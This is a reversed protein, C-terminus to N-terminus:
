ILRKIDKKELLKGSGEGYFAIAPEQNTLIAYQMESKLGSIITESLKALTSAQQVDIKGDELDDFVQLMKERLEKMTTTKAM